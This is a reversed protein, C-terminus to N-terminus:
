EQFTKCETGCGCHDVSVSSATCKCNENHRCNCAKCAIATQEAATKCDACNTAGSQERFSKCDTESSSHAAAGGVEISSLRCLGDAHNACSRVSCKLSTMKIVREIM